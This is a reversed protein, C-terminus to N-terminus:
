RSTALEDRKAKLEAVTPSEWSMRVAFSVGHDYLTYAKTRPGEAKRAIEARYMEAQEPSLSRPAPARALDDALASYSEGVRLLSDTIWEPEETKIVAFLQDEVDKLLRARRRLNRLIRPQPGALPLAEANHAWADLLAYRGRGVMWRHRTDAGLKDLNARILHEGRIRRGAHLDLVGEQIRLVPVFEPNLSSAHQLASLESRAEDYRSLDDLVVVLHYRAEMGAEGGIDIAARLYPEALDPHWALDEALGRELNWQAEEGPDILPHLTDLLQAAGVYDGSERAAIAGDLTGALAGAAVLSALLM